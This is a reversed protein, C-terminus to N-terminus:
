RTRVAEQEIPHRTPANNKGKFTPFCMSDSTNANGFLRFYAELRRMGGLLCYLM